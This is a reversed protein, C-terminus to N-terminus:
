QTIGVKFPYVEFNGCTPNPQLSQPQLWGKGWMLITLRSVSSHISCSNWGKIGADVIEYPTQKIDYDNSNIINCHFKYLLHLTSQLKQIYRSRQQMTTSWYIYIYLSVCWRSKNQQMFIRWNKLISNTMTEIARYKRSDLKSMRTIERTTLTQNNEVFIDWLHWM